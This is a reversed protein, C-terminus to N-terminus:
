MGIYKEYYSVDFQSVGAVINGGTVTIVNEGDTVEPDPALHFSSLDSNSSVYGILNTDVQNTVTKNGYELNITVIESGSISYNLEIVEDTSVNTIVPFSIPGTITITPYSIWTGNYTLTSGTVISSVGFTINTTDFSFPFVLSTEEITTYETSKEDPDYLIPDHAIFRVIDQVSFEDWIAQNDDFQLGDTIFVSVDRKTGDPLKKRLTGTSFSGTQRNPRMVNLLEARNDWYGQRNCNNYRHLLTILRPKLNFSLPTEGNQFPGRQTRYEIPPLGLGNSGSILFKDLGNRFKYTEGDPSIYEDFEILRKTM